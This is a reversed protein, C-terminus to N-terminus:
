VAVIHTLGQSLYREMWVPHNPDIGRQRALVYAFLAVPPVAVLSALEEDASTPIPLHGSEAVALDPTVEILGSGWAACHRVLEQMADRGRGAPELAIVTTEPGILTAAGSTMEWTEAAEAHVLAMEKLKLAGELAAPYAGGGGAVFIHESAGFRRALAEVREMADAVAQAADGAAGEIRAELALARSGGLLEAMLLCAATLTSSFTKTMVPVRSPGGMAVLVHDAHVTLTSGPVHVIAITPLQGRALRMATVVERFEGSASIGVLADRSGFAPPYTAFDAATLPVISPDDPTALHRYVTAAALSSHYSTGNGIVFLRRVGRARLDAAAQRAAPLTGVLTARIAGPGAVIEEPIM